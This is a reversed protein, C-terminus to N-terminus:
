RRCRAHVNRLEALEAELDAIQAKLLYEKSFRLELEEELETCYDELALWPPRRRNTSM